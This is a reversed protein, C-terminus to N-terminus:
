ITTEGPKARQYLRNVEDVVAQNGAWFLKYKPNEKNTIIDNAAKEDDTMTTAPTQNDVVSNGEGTMLALETFAQMMWSANGLGTANLIEKVQEESAGAAKARNIIATAGMIEAQKADLGQDQAWKNFKESEEAKGLEIM